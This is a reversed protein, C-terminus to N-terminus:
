ATGRAKCCAHMCFCHLADLQGAAPGGVPPKHDGSHISNHGDGPRPLPLFRGGQRAVACHHSRAPSRAGARSPLAAVRWGAARCAQAETGPARGGGGRAGARATWLRLEGALRGASKCVQPGPARHAARALAPVASLPSPPPPPAAPACGSRPQLHPLSAPRGAGAVQGSHGGVLVAWWLLVGRGSRWGVWWCARPRTSRWPCCACGTSASPWRRAPASLASSLQPHDVAPPVSPTPRCPAACRAGRKGVRGAAVAAGTPQVAGGAAPPRPQM